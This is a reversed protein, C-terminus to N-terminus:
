SHRSIEFLLDPSKYAESSYNIQPHHHQPSSGLACWQSLVSYLYEELIMFSRTAAALKPKDGLGHGPPWFSSALYTSSATM